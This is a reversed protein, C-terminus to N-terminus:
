AAQDRDAGGFAEDAEDELTEQVGGPDTPVRMPAPDPNPPCTVPVRLVAPQVDVVVGGFAGELAHGDAALVPEEGAVVPRSLGGRGEVAKDGAGFAM